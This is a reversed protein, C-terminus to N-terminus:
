GLFVKAEALVRAAHKIGVCLPFVLWATVLWQAAVVCHIQAQASGHVCISLNKEKGTCQASSNPFSCLQTVDSEM